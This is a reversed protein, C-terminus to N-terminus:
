TDLREELIGISSKLDTNLACQDIYGKFREFQAEMKEQFDKFLGRTAFDEMTHELKKAKDSLKDSMANKIEFMDRATAKKAM